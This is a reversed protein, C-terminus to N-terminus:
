GVCAHMVVMDINNSKCEDLNRLYKKVLEEGMENDLWINNLNKYGLHAFIVNLNKERIYKLQDEQSVEFDKDYWQIFVNKFGAKVVADITEYFSCLNDNSICIALNNM